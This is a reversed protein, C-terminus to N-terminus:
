DLALELFEDCQALHGPRPRGPDADRFGLRRYFAMARDNGSRVGAVLTTAGRGRAWDEVAALLARATAGGRATPDVWMAALQRADDSGADTGVAMGVATGDLFAIVCTAEVGAADLAAIGEWHSAPRAAVEDHRESFSGPADALARLRVERLLDAEDARLARVTLTPTM